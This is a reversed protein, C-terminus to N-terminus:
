EQEAMEALNRKMKEFAAAVEEPSALDMASWDSFYDELSQDVLRTFRKFEEPKFTIRRGQEECGQQIVLMDNELYVLTALSDSAGHSSELLIHRTISEEM